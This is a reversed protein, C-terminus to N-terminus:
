NEELMDELVEIYEELDAINESHCFKDDRSDSGALWIKENSLSVRSEELEEQIVEKSPEEGLNDLWIEVNERLFM